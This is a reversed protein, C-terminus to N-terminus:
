NAADVTHAAGNGQRFVDDLYPTSLHEVAVHQEATQHACQIHAVVHFELSAVEAHLTVRHIDERCVTLVDHSHSEPIVFDVGNLFQVGYGHM